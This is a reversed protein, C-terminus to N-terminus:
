LSVWKNLKEYPIQSHFGKKLNNSIVGRSWTLVKNKHENHFDQDNIMKQIMQNPSLSQDIDMNIFLFINSQIKSTGEVSINQLSITYYKKEFSSEQILKLILILIYNITFHVYTLNTSIIIM